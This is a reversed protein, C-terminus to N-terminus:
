TVFSSASDSPGSMRTLATAGPRTSVGIVAFQGSMSSVQFVFDGIFRGAFGSSM